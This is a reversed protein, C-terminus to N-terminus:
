CQKVKPLTLTGADERQTMEAERRTAQPVRSRPRATAWANGGAVPTETTGQAPRDVRYLYAGARM